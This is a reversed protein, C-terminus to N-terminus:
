FKPISPKQSIEPYRPCVEKYSCYQLCRVPVTTGAVKRPWVDDCVPPIKDKNLYNEMLGVQTNFQSEIIGDDLIPIDIEQYVPEKIGKRFNFGGDCSLSAVVMRFRQGTMKKLLYRYVNMQWIYTDSEPDKEIAKQLKEVRYKKIFKLDYIVRCEYDVIDATGTLKWDNKMEYELEVEPVVDTAILRDLIESEVGKHGLTGIEAQSIDKSPLVGHKYRLWLQLVDTDIQSASIAKVEKEQNGGYQTIDLIFQKLDM